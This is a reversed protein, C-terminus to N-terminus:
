LSEAQFAPTGLAAGLHWKSEETISIGMGHFVEMAMM